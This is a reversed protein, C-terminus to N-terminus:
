SIKTTITISDSGFRNMYIYFMYAILRTLGCPMFIFIGFILIQLKVTQITNSIKQAQTSM